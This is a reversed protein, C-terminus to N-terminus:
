QNQPPGYGDCNRNECKGDITVSGCKRCAAYIEAQYIGNGIHTITDTHFLSGAVNVFIGNDNMLIQDRTLYHPSEAFAGLSFCSLLFLVSLIKFM